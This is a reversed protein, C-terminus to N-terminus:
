VPESEKGLDLGGSLVGRAIRGVLGPCMLEVAMFTFAKEEPTLADDMM